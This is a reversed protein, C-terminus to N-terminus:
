NKSFVTSAFKLMSASIVVFRAGSIKKGAYPLELNLKTNKAIKKSKPYKIKIFIINPIIKL